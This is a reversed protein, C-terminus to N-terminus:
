DRKRGFGVLAHYNPCFADAGSTSGKGLAADCEATNACQRCRSLHTEVESAYAKRMYRRTSIGLSELMRHIRLGNIRLRLHQRYSRLFRCNHICKALIACVTVGLALGSVVLVLLEFGAASEIANM